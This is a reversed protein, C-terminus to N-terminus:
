SRSSYERSGTKFTIPIEGIAFIFVRGLPRSRTPEGYAWSSGGMIGILALYDRSRDEGDLYETGGTESETGGYSPVMKEDDM